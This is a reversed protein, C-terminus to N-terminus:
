TDTPPPPMDNAMRARLDALVKDLHNVVFLQVSGDTLEVRLRNRLRAAMGLLPLAPRRPEVTVRSINTRQTSWPRGLPIRNPQHILRTSTLFLRGGGTVFTSTQRAAPRQWEVVEGSRLFPAPVFWGM